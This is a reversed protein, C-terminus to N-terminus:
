KMTCKLKLVEKFVLYYNTIKVVFIFYLIIFILYLVIKSVYIIYISTYYIEILKMNIKNRINHLM